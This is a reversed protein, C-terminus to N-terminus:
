WKTFVIHMATLNSIFCLSLIDITQKHTCYIDYKVIDYM